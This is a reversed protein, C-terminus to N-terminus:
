WLCLSILYNEFIMFPIYLVCKVYASFMLTFELRAIGNEEAIAILKILVVWSHLIQISFTVVTYLLCIVFDKVNPVILGLCSLNQDIYNLNKFM